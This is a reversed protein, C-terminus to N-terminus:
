KKKKKKAKKLAGAVTQKEKEQGIDSLIHNHEDVM